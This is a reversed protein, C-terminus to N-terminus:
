RALLCQIAFTSQLGTQRGKAWLRGRCLRVTSKQLAGRTTILLRLTQNLRWTQLASRRAKGLEYVERQTVRSSCDLIVCATCTGIDVGASQGREKVGNM